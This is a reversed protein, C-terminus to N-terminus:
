DSYSIVSPSYDHQCICGSGRIRLNMGQISHFYLPGSAKPLFAKIGTGVTSHRLQLVHKVAFIDAMHYFIKFDTGTICLSIKVSGNKSVSIKIFPHLGGNIRSILGTVLLQFIFDLIIYGQDSSCLLRITVKGGFLDNSLSALVANGSHAIDVIKLDIIKAVHKGCCTHVLSNGSLVIEQCNCGSRCIIQLVKVFLCFAGSFDLRSNAGRMVHSQHFHVTGSPFLAIQPQRLLGNGKTVTYFVAHVIVLVLDRQFLM